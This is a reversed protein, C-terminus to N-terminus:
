PRKKSATYVSVSKGHQKNEMFQPLDRLVSHGLERVHCQHLAKSVKCLLLSFPIPIQNWALTSILILEPPRNSASSTHAKLCVVTGLFLAIHSFFCVSDRDTASDLNYVETGM